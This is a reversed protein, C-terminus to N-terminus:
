GLEHHWASGGELSLELCLSCDVSTPAINKSSEREQVFSPCWIGTKWEDRLDVDAWCRKHGGM